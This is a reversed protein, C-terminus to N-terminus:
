TSVRYRTPTLQTSKHSIVLSLLLTGDNDNNDDEVVDPSQDFAQSDDVHVDLADISSNSIVADGDSLSRM